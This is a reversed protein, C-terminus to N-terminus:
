SIVRRRFFYVGISSMAVFCAVLLGYVGWLNMHPFTPVLAARLGESMYVVPNFLTGIQLWRITHLSSWPYYVCGLLTLPLILLAFLLNISKPNVITGMLLGLSAGVLAGIVVLSILYQPHSWDPSIAFGTAIWVAPIVLIAALVSQIAGSIIKAM